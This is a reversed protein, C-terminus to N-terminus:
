GQMRISKAQTQISKGQLVAQAIKAHKEDSFGQIQYLPRGAETLISLTQENLHIQDTDNLRYEIRQQANAHCFQKPSIMIEGGSLCNSSQRNHYWRYGWVGTLMLMIIVAATLLSLWGLAIAIGVSALVIATWLICTLQRSAVNASQLKIKFGNDVVTLM